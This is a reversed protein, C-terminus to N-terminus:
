ESIKDRQQTIYRLSADVPMASATIKQFAAGYLEVEKPEEIYVSNLLTETHVVDLDNKEPFGLIKFSGNLGPHPASATPLVQINVNPLRARDLLRQLQERMVSGDEGIQLGLAAEHIVVWVQPADTKKTLVAQRNMRVEVKSEVPAGAEELRTGEIVAEAYAATQLLGPIFLPDYISIKSAEQELSILDAYDTTLVDRYAMWWGRKSGEKALNLLADRQADECGYFRLLEILDDPKAAQRAKELRWLKDRSLKVEPQAEVDELSM